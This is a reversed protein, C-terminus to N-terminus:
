GPLCAVVQCPGIRRVGRFASGGFECPRFGPSKIGRGLLARDRGPLGRDRGPLGRDRGPLGRDRGPLGRDRGPLGRDRGPLGRDTREPFNGIRRGPFDWDRVPM